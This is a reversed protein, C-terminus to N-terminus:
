KNRYSRFYSIVNNPLIIKLISKLDAFLNLGHYRRIKFFERKSDRCSFQAEFDFGNNFALDSHHYRNTVGCNWGSGDMGNNSVLSRTPFIQLLQKHWIYFGISM